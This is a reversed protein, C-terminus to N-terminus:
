RRPRRPPTSSQHTPALCCSRACSAALHSSPLGQEQAVPRPQRPQLPTSAAQTSSGPSAVLWGAAARGQVARSVKAPAPTLQLTWELVVGFFPGGGKIAWLLDKNDKASATVVTGNSLLVQPAPCAAANTATL